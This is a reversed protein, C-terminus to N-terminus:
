EPPAPVPGASAQRRSRRQELLARGSLWGVVVFVPLLYLLEALWHGAHALVVTMGTM